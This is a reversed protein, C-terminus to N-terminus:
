TSYFITNMHCKSRFVILNKWFDAEFFIKGGRGSYQFKIQPDSIKEEPPSRGGSGGYNSSCKLRRGIM